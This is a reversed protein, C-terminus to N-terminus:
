NQVSNRKMLLNENNIASANIADDYFKLSKIKDGKYKYIDGKIESLVQKFSKQMKVEDLKRLANDYEKKEVYIIAIKIKALSNYTDNSDINIIEQLYNMSLDYNKNEFEKKASIFNSLVEYISEDHESKLKDKIEEVETDASEIDILKYYLDSAALNKQDAKYDMYNWLLPISIGILIGAIIFKINESVWVLLKSTFDINEESM